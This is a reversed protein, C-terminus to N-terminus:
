SAYFLRVAIVCKWCAFVIFLGMEDAAQKWFANVLERM